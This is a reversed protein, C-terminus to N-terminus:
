QSVEQAAPIFAAVEIEVKARADVIGSIYPAGIGALAPSQLTRMLLGKLVGAVCFRDKAGNARVGVAFNLWACRQILM